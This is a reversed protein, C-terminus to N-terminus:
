EIMGANYEAESENMAVQRKFESIKYNISPAYNKRDRRGKNRTKPSCMPCSCHIKNKSYQHLNNYYEQTSWPYVERAIARKRLAKIVNKHRRWAASRKITKPNFSEEHVTFFMKVDELDKFWKVFDCETCSARIDDDGCFYRDYIDVPAGCHPCIFSIWQKM